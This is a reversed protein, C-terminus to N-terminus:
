EHRISQVPNALAAKLTQFAVTILTILLLVIVPIAFMLLSLNIKLTFDTLWYQVIYWAVPVALVTALMILRFYEKWLLLLIQYISAGLVKRVGIEKKRASASYASMGLLGLCTIWISLGSFFILVREFQQDSQYQQNYFTDLFSYIFPQGPFLSNFLQATEQITKQIETNKVSLVYHYGASPNFLFIIPLLTNKPSHFYFNKVVGVIRVTDENFAIQQQLADEPDSFGLLRTASENLIVEKGKISTELFPRGALMNLGLVSDFNHDVQVYHIAHVNTTDAKINRVGNSYPKIQEGPLTEIYTMGEVYALRLIEKKFVDVNRGYLSDYVESDRIVLKENQEFGLPQSRVHLIQQRATFIWIILILSVAFQFTVLIRRLSTGQSSRNSIGRLVMVPDFGSLVLSPYFASIFTGTLLVLALFLWQTVAISNLQNFGAIYEPWFNNGIVLLIIAIIFALFNLTCSELLFQLILQKRDSGLAKRVGVERARELSKATSLSVYNIWALVLISLAILKLYFLLKGDGNQTWEGHYNSTLHISTLPQLKLELRQDTNRLWEGTQQEILSPLKAELDRASAAPKLLLYTIFGDWRWPEELILKDVIQKYSEFSLLIELDMHSNGPMDAFVGTIEYDFRGKFNITKGVPNEGKFIKDAFASSIVATFPRSLVDDPDGQLLPFSFIHFFDQSSYCAKDSKFWETGYRILAGTKVMQVYADVEPFNAKIEPGAALCGDVLEMTLNGKHYRETKLRVIRDSNSHFHDYQEEQSIFFFMALYTALGISLGLLNILTFVKNRRYNRLAVRLFSGTM